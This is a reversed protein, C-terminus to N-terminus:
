PRKLVFQIMQPIRKQPYGKREYGIIFGEYYNVSLPWPSMTLMNGKIVFKVRTKKQSAHSAFIEVGGIADKGLAFDFAIDDAIETIADAFLFEKQSINVVKIKKSLSSELLISLEKMDAPPYMAILRKIHLLTLIDSVPDKNEKIIGQKLTHMREKKSLSMLNYNDHEEFGRDHFLVGRVFSDHPIKPREFSINGWLAAIVASLRAHEAQSVILQHRSSIFM